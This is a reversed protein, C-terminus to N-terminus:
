EKVSGLVIGKIFFRQLFPYVLLIPLTGIFIQAAKATRDSVEQLSALDNADVETLQSQVVITQLYTSLPYHETRNMYILGDFWSNWNFVITFLTVTALVPLSLPVIIRWCITFHGAGDMMASEELEKPLGRFFNLMLVINFINSGTGWTPFILAWISDLLGTNRVTMYLPILGGSFLMTFVFFWALVTRMRFARVEKSLPYAVMIILILNLTVGVVVRQLTVGMSTLFQPKSLVFNYSSFTMDVPWFSVMGTTAASSSSFSLALVHVLPLLCLISLLTLFTYNFSVFLKRSTSM